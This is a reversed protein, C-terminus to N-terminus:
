GYKTFTYQIGPVTSPAPSITAFLGLDDRARQLKGGLRLIDKSHGEFQQLFYHIVPFVFLVTPM